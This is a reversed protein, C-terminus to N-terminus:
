RLSGEFPQPKYKKNFRVGNCYVPDDPSPLFASHGFMLADPLPRQPLNDQGRGSQYLQEGMFIMTASHGGDLNYAVTCGKAVYMKALDTLTYSGKTTILIYHGKEVMGISARFNGTRLRHKNLGPALKGDQVLIPGFAYADRVGMVLLDKAKAKGPAYVRLEGDPLIAMTPAQAKDYYVKGSRIMVGKPNGRHTVYDGTIALVAGYQRAIKYPLLTKRGFLDKYAFGGYPLQGGRTYVEAVFYIGGPGKLADVRVSLTLDKYIWPGKDPDKVSKYPRDTSFHVSRPDPTSAPMGSFMPDAAARTPPLACFLGILLAACTLISIPRKGLVM